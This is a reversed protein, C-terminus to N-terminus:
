IRLVSISSGSACGSPPGTDVESLFSAETSVPISTPSIPPAICIITAVSAKALGNEPGAFEPHQHSCQATDRDPKQHHCGKPATKDPSCASSACNGFCNANGILAAVAVLVVARTWAVIM